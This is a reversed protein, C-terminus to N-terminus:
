FVYSFVCKLYVMDICGIHYPKRQLYYDRIVYSAVFCPSVMDTFFLELICILNCQFSAMDICGIHYPKLQSYYDYLVYTTEYFPYVM